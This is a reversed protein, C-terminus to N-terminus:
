IHATPLLGYSKLIQPCFPLPIKKVFGLPNAFRVNSTIGNNKSVLVRARDLGAIIENCDNRPSNVLVVECIEDEHDGEVEFKYAGSAGCVSEVTFTVNASNVRDRCELKVKAGNIYESASTEFLTRCTDCYVQGHVQIKDHCYAAGLLSLFCLSAILAVLKAM